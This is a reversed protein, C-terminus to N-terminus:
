SLKNVNEPKLNLEKDWFNIKAINPMPRPKSLTNIKIYLWKQRQYFNISAADGLWVFIFDIIFMLYM